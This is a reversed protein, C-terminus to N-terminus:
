HSDLASGFTSKINRLHFLWVYRHTIPLGMRRQQAPNSKEGAEPGGRFVDSAGFLSGRLTSGEVTAPFLDISPPPSDPLKEDMVEMESHGGRKAGNVHTSIDEISLAFRLQAMHQAGNTNIENEIDGLIVRQDGKLRSTLTCSEIATALLASTHWQSQPDLKVYSPLGANPVSVPIYMSALSSLEWVIKASNLDKVM